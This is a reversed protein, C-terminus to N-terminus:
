FLDIQAGSPRRFSEVSLDPARVALGTRKCSSAFLTRIQDAYVGQGRMREGFRAESLKGRRIERLRNLVKASRDPRTRELWDVFLTEVAGPLRLLLWNAFTAGAAAAAELIAPIEHENLGPIVPAISVGCPIGSRSLKDIAALRDLPRSTRPEMVRALEGDLTTISLLVTAARHQALEGLYDIDRTVLANKTVVGVPNRF